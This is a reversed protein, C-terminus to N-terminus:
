LRSGVIRTSQTEAVGSNLIDESMMLAKDLVIHIHQLEEWSAPIDLILTRYGRAIYRSIESATREYSGVFYPCFTKYTQFPVLWYPDEESQPVAPTDSLQRHWVSDSVKMALKHAIEGKRDEPFRERAVRWADETRERAVIGIRAGRRIGTPPTEMLEDQIPRPYVVATAGTAIAAEMGASSSGSMLIEPILEEPLPPTMKLRTISYYKGEFSVSGQKELLQRIILTYEKTRAYRDDHPTPDNLALLDNKFGGALMNLAVRRRYLYGFSAVMKAVSYPHMYVPQVAVLPALHKTNELIVQAVLWPDVISNDTYVLIGTCGAEESWQAVEIVQRVYDNEPVDKSQPCTSYVSLGKLRGENNM